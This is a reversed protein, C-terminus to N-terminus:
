ETVALHVIVEEKREKRAIKVPLGGTVRYPGTSDMGVGYLFYNGWKLGECHVHDEGVEGIFYTDYDGPSIGPSEQAGFKVFVTDPWGVHNKIVNGHHELFVVLTADGGTGEKHCSTVVFSVAATLLLALIINKTKM